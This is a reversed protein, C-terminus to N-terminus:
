FDGGGFDGGSPGGFDGGSPGGFDGGFSSDGGGGGFFGGGGSDDDSGGGFFGGFGSDDDDDDSGSGFVVRVKSRRSRTDVEEYAQEAKRIAQNYKALSAVPDSEATNRADRLLVRADRLHKEADSQNNYNYDNVEEDAESIKKNATREKQPIEALASQVDKWKDIAEVFIHDAEARKGEVSNIIQAALTFQQVAMSNNNQADHIKSRLDTLLTMASVIKGTYNYNPYKALHQSAAWAVSYLGSTKELQGYLRKIRDENERVLQPVGEVLKRAEDIYKIGERTEQWIALYDPLQLNSDTLPFSSSVRAHDRAYQAKNYLPYFEDFHMKFYGQAVLGNVVKHYEGFKDELASINDAYERKAQDLTNLYVLAEKIGHVATQLQDLATKALKLKENPHEAERATLLDLGADEIGPGFANAIPLKELYAKHHNKEADVRRAVFEKNQDNAAALLQSVEDVQSNASVTAVCKMGQALLIFVFCAAIGLLIGPRRWM